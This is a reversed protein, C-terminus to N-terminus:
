VANFSAVPNKFVQITTNTKTDTNGSADKAELTVTYTGPVYYIASPDKLTSKNGNGFDWSYSVANSSKNLFKVILPSCGKAPTPDFDAVPQAVVRGFAM